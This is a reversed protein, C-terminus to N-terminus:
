LVYASIKAPVSLAFDRMDPSPFSSFLTTHRRGDLGGKGRSARACIMLPSQSRTM